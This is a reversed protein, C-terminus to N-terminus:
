DFCVLLTHSCVYTSTNLFHLTVDIFYYICCFLLTVFPFSIVIDDSSVSRLVVLTSPCISM